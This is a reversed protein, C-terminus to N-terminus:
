DHTTSLPAQCSDRAALALPKSLPFKPAIHGLKGIRKVRECLVPSFFSHSGQVQGSRSLCPRTTCIAFGPGGCRHQTYQPVHLCSGHRHWRRIQHHSKM